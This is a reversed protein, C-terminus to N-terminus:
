VHNLLNNGYLALPVVLSMSYKCSFGKLIPIMNEFFRDVLNKLQIIALFAAKGSKKSKEFTFIQGAPLRQIIKKLANLDSSSCEVFLAVFVPYGIIQWFEWPLFHPHYEEYPPKAGFHFSLDTKMELDGLTQMPAEKLYNYDDYYWSYSYLSQEGFFRLDEQLPLIRFTLGPYRTTIGNIGVNWQSEQNQLDDNSVLYELILINDLSGGYYWGNQLYESFLVSFVRTKKLIFPNINTGSQSLIVFIRQKKELTPNKKRKVRFDFKDTILDFNFQQTQIYQKFFTIVKKRDIGSSIRLTNLTNFYHLDKFFQSYAFDPLKKDWNKFSLSRPTPMKSSALPKLLSQLYHNFKREDWERTEFDFFAVVNFGIQSSQFIYPSGIAILNDRLYYKSFLLYEEVTLDIKIYYSIRCVWELSFILLESFKPSSRSVVNLQIINQSTLSFFFFSLYKRFYDQQILHSFRTKLETNSHDRRKSLYKTFEPLIKPVYDDFFHETLYSTDPIKLLTLIHILNEVSKKNPYKKKLVKEFEPIPIKSKKPIITEFYIQDYAKKIKPSHLLHLCSILENEELLDHFSKNNLNIKEFEFFLFFDLLDFQPSIDQIQKPYVQSYKLLAIKPNKKTTKALHRYKKSPFPLLQPINQERHLKNDFQTNFKSEIATDILFTDITRLKRLKNLYNVLAPKFEAPSFSIFLCYNNNLSFHSFFPIPLFLRELYEQSRNSDTFKVYIIFYGLGIKAFNRALITTSFSYKAQLESTIRAYDDYNKLPSSLGIIDRIAGINFKKSYIKMVWINFISFFAVKPYPPNLRAAFDSILESLSIEAFIFELIRDTFFLHIFTDSVSKKIENWLSQLLIKDTKQFQLLFILNLLYNSRFNDPLFSLVAAFNIIEPLIETCQPPITVTDYGFMTRFIKPSIRKKGKKGKSETDILKIDSFPFVRDRHFKKQYFELRKRYVEILDHDDM